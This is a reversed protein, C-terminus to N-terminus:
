KKLKNAIAKFEETPYYFIHCEYSKIGYRHHKVKILSKWLNNSKILPLVLRLLNIDSTKGEIEEQKSLKNLIEERTM